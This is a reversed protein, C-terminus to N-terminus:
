GIGPILLLTGHMATVSNGVEDEAIVQYALSVLEQEGPLGSLAPGNFVIDIMGSVANIVECYFTTVPASGEALAVNCTFIYGTINLAIDAEADWFQLGIPTQTNRAVEIDVPNGIWM